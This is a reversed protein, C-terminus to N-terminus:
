LATLHEIRDLIRQALKAKTNMVLVETPTAEAIVNPDSNYMVEEQLDDVVKGAITHWDLGALYHGIKGM